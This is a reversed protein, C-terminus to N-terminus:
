ADRLIGIAPQRASRVTFAAAAVVAAVAVGALTGLYGWPVALHSPAPDFVGTLVKVLMASLAWGGAAGALAGVGTVFLAETWVFGRLQRENAGLASAIAFTRRRESMGLALVLGTAAAALVLAFGLEVRTLGGLDVATLSSGIVTRSSQIDTVTASTGLRAKLTDAVKPPSAGGTTTLLFSGVADSGTQASVYSANAVLFSDSPATPFEKAVGAYHFAVDTYAKTTGNQLRLTLPDGPQLQFDRVTELSVLVADPQAALKAMLQGATGGEFYADQLRTADAVTTPNVGYLDQLDAGVYAFRHQIPEVSAVGPVAALDTAASPGVTVGPSETVTVDAGNTLLADVEAQQRYTANFVAVSSAFTATLAVIVTARALLRRQRSMAAAVTSALRGSWPRAAAAVGSRGRRLALDALRWTFLGAGLWLLLPGAFAWYNVSITPTGEPALVLKYGGRSTLVFVVVSGALLWLDLGARQWRPRDHRGVTRRAQVVSSERADRWAPLAVAFAAILGGALAAGVGWGLATLPTAGFTAEHFALRGVLAAAGLGVVAGVGAVAASELVGLGVLQGISAGRVRLLAQERRRREAAASAVTATLLAAVVAGPLGLFLFLIQAYLADSRAADLTAGLNNGVLGAGTLKVELNQAQGTVDTFAAAPDSPLSHDLAVHVQTHVLDPRTAALPDFTQHWTAAPVLLVNDPPAQPQAGVPAGVDQFLADAQPLDVIGAIKLQVPALGDRGISITDGPQAQLNAATQQALLVGKGAGTLDRLEDPFAARYGDPLGLVVGPGTTQTTGGVTAQFGTTQGFGVPLATQVGPASAVAQRVAAHDAGAQAEVQWDVAVREIARSTMTAKSAGLFAGISALLAVALAVGAATATLRVSRRAALNRVWILGLM